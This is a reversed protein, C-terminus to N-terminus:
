IWILEALNINAKVTVYINYNHQSLSSTKLEQKNRNYSKLNKIKLMIKIYGSQKLVTSEQSGENKFRHDKNISKNSQISKSINLMTFIPCVNNLEPLSIVM